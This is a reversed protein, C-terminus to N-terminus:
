MLTGVNSLEYAPLDTVSWHVNQAALVKYFPTVM